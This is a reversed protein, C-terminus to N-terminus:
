IRPQVISILKCKQELRPMGACITLAQMRREGSQRWKSVKASTFFM